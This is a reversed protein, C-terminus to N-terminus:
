PIYRNVPKEKPREVDGIPILIKSVAGPQVMFPGSGHTNRAYAFLGKEFFFSSSAATGSIKHTFLIM